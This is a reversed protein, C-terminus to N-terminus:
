EGDEGGWVCLSYLSKIRVFGDNQVYVRRGNYNTTRVYVRTYLYVCVCIYICTNRCFDSKDSKSPPRRPFFFGFVCDIVGAGGWVGVKCKCPLTIVSKPSVKM